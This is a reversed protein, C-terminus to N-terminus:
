SIFQNLGDKSHVMLQHEKLPFVNRILICMVGEADVFWLVVDAILCVM